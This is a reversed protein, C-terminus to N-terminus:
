LTIAGLRAEIDADNPEDINLLKPQIYVPEMEGRDFNYGLKAVARAVPLSAMFRRWVEDTFGKPSRHIAQIAIDLDKVNKLQSAFINNCSSMIGPPIESPTQTILHLFIGYKRSDRWMAAFQEALSMGGEEGGGKDGVGSLIKNAEEFVIQIHAPESKSRQIRQIVADTYIHWAVWGLLFAKSFDDLFAGGELIAIGWDGPVIDNIDIADDGAAYQMAAEGHVLPDLRFSIGELISRRIDKAPITEIERELADYLIKLDVTQSRRVALLQREDRALAALPTGEPKGVLAAEEPSAVFGWTPHQRVEPDDTLVGANVYVTHLMARLEHIQRKGGLQAINGFIDCFSRWQVEPLINRGIQLPNWRLPRVGGPSLQRIEVHGDLGPANLMKRWGAGFDLVVTKMGWKITTEYAMREAAVTKGYGTDGMFATHFHRNRALKLPATTLDGTEPSVQHGLTVDGGMLPYFALGSPIREQVTMAVGEEFLNPATLAALMQVTHLTGWKTWLGVGFPDGDPMLSPRFAIMFPRLADDAQVPQIPTPVDKGHFSQTVTAMAPKLGADDVALTATTYFGGELSALNLLSVLQRSIETMRIAVDDESQWSRTIAIGPVIGAGLGGLYGRSGSMAISRAQSQGDSHSRGWSDSRGTTRGESWGEGISESRSVTHSRGATVSHSSAVGWTSSRAVGSTSAGGRTNASGVSHATGWSEGRTTSNFGGHSNTTSSSHVTSQSTSSFSGNSVSHSSSGGVSTASGSSVTQGTSASGGVSSGHSVNMGTSNQVTSGHAVATGETHSSGFTSSGGMSHAQGTSQNQGYGGGVTGSVGTGFLGASASASANVNWNSGQSASVSESSQIGTSSSSGNTAVNTVGQSSGTTHGSSVSVGSNAGWNSSQSQSASVGSSQSSGWSSGTSDTVSHSTGQTTSTGHAVGTTHATSWSSGSSHAVSTGHSTTNAVSDTHAWSNTHAQSHTVGGGHSVVSGNTVAISTTDAEGHTEGHSVSHGWSHAESTGHAQAVGDSHSTAHTRGSGHSAGTNAGLAAALPIAISFSAGLAGRQRSAYISSWRSMKVLADSLQGRAIYSATVTFVFDRRIKALGRLMNEGQQALMEDDVDGLSGDRGMGKRAYRPDPHGLIAIIRPLREIRNLLLGIREPAPPRLRMHPFNSMTAIVSDMREKAELIAMRETHAEAAAGYFQGVGLHQPRYVGMATYVFDVKAAYLGRIVSWQKGLVDPDERTETPIYVLEQFTIVRYIEGREPDRIRLILHEFERGTYSIHPPQTISFEPTSWSAPSSSAAM